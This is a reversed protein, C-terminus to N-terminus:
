TLMGRGVLDLRDVLANALEDAVHELLGVVFPDRSVQAVKSSYRSVCLTSSGGETWGVAQLDFNAGNSTSIHSREGFVSLLLLKSKAFYSLDGM